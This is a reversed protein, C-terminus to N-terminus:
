RQAEWLGPYRTVFGHEDVELTAEFGLDPAEYVYQREGIRRYRQRLRELSLGALRLWASYTEAQEGVRLGLRRVALLNTAPTFDLDVDICGAAQPQELGDLRWSGDEALLETCVTREGIHGEVRAGLSRWGEDCEVRHRLMCPLGKEAFAATGDLLWGGPMPSIRAEDRGPEDLRKWAISFSEAVTNM